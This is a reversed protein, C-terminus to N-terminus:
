GERCAHEIDRSFEDLLQKELRSFMQFKFGTDTRSFVERKGRNNFFIVRDIGWAWDGGCNDTGVDAIGDAYVGPFVELEQFEYEIDRLPADKADPHNAAYPM